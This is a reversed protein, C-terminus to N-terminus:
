VLDYEIEVTFIDVSEPLLRLSLDVVLLEFQSLLSLLILSHLYM